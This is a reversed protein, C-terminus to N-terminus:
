SGNDLHVFFGIGGGGIIIGPLGFFLLIALILVVSAPDSTFDKDPQPRLLEDNMDSGSDDATAHDTEESNWWKEEMSIHVRKQHRNDKNSSRFFFWMNALTPLLVGIRTYAYTM